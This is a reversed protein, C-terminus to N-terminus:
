SSQFTATHAEIAEESVITRQTLAAYFEQLDEASGICVYTVWVIRDNEEADYQAFSPIIVGEAAMRRRVKAAQQAIEEDTTDLPIVADAAAIRLFRDNGESRAWANWIDLKARYDPDNVNRERNLVGGIDIEETPPEPYRHPHDLPYSEAEKRIAEFLRGITTPGIKHLEVTIGSDKFTHRTRAPAARGRIRAQDFSLVNTM